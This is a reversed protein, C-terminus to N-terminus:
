FWQKISLMEDLNPLKGQRRQTFPVALGLRLEEEGVDLGQSVVRGLLRGFKDVRNRREIKIEVNKGEVRTKMWDRAKEGGANLEPTDIDLLRLPFSFDRFDTTLTITDGDHVKVVKARFDEEIQPHPSQFRLEELQAKRLEPFKVFDHDVM